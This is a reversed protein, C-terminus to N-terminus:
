VAVISRLGLFHIQFVLPKAPTWQYKINIGASQGSRHHEYMERPLVQQATLCGLRLRGQTSMRGNWRRASSQGKLCTLPFFPMRYCEAAGQKPEYINHASVDPLTKTENNPIKHMAFTSILGPEQQVVIWKLYVCEFKHLGSCVGTTIAWKPLPHPLWLECVQCSKPM